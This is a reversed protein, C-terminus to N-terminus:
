GCSDILLKCGADENEVFLFVLIGVDTWSGIVYSIFCGMGFCDSM